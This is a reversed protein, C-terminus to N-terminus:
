KMAGSRTLAVLTRGLLKLDGRFSRTRVYEEYLALKRPLIEEAYTREPDPSRALVEEEDLFVIAAPDTMGPAVTHVFAWRAPYAEVWKRVEPRPGVLAMDGTLVNWLQPLEDLKFRRLVRGLATVRRVTGADFRGREAGPLVSMTRYKLIRFDRGRQGVRMQRFFVPFGDAVAVAVGVALLLPSLVLLGLGALAADL